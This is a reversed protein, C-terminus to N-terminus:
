QVEHSEGAFYNLVELRGLQQLAACYVDGSEPFDTVNWKRNTGFLVFKVEDSGANHLQRAAANPPFHAIDGPELECDSDIDGQRQRMGLTGGLVFLAQENHRHRLLPGPESGTPMRCLTVALERAGAAAALAISRGAM